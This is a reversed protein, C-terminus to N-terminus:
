HPKSGLKLNYIYIRKKEENQLLHGKYDKITEKVKEVSILNLLVFCQTLGLVDHEFAVWDKYLPCLSIGYVQL